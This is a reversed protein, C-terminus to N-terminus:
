DEQADEISFKESNQWGDRRIYIEQIGKDKFLNIKNIEVEGTSGIVESNIESGDKKILIVTAGINGSVRIISNDSNGNARHLIYVNDIILKQNVVVLELQVFGSYGAVMGSYLTTGITSTDITTNNWTVSVFKETGDSMIAPVNKPLEYISGRLKEVRIKDISEISVTPENIVELYLKIIKNNGYIDVYGEVSGNAEYIGVESTDLNKDWSSVQVELTLEESAYISEVKASVKTPMSFEENLNKEITIDEINVIKFDGILVGLTVTDDTGVVRGVSSKYGSVSTDISSPQWKVAVERSTGDSMIAMVRKPMNIIGGIVTIVSAPDILETISVPEVSDANNTTFEIYSGTSDGSITKSLNLGIVETKLDYISTGKKGITYSVLNGGRNSKNVIFTYDGNDSAGIIKTPNGYEKYILKGNEVYIQHAGPEPTMNINNLIKIKDAYRIKKAIFDTPMRVDFQNDATRNTLTFSELGFLNLSLITSMVIGLIALTVIVEVLTLGKNSSIKFERM